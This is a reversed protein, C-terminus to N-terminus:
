MCYKAITEADLGYKKELAAYAEPSLGRNDQAFPNGPMAKMGFFTLTALIFLTMCGILLRKVIYKFM